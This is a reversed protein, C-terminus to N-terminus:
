TGRASRLPLRARLWRRRPGKRCRCRSLARAADRGSGAGRRPFAHMARRVPPRASRRPIRSNGACAACRRGSAAVWPPIVHQRAVQEADPEALSLDLKGVDVFRAPFVQTHGSRQDAGEFAMFAPGPLFEVFFERIDRPRSRIEQEVAAQALQQLIATRERGSRGDVRHCQSAPDEFRRRRSVPVRVLDADVPLGNQGLRRFRGANICLLDVPGEIGIELRGLPQRRELGAGRLPEQAPVVDGQGLGNEKPRRFEVQVDLALGRGTVAVEEPLQLEEPQEVLDPLGTRPFVVNM